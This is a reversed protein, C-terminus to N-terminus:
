DKEFIYYFPVSLTSALHIANKQRVRLVKGSLWRRLTSSDIGSFEALWWKKLGQKNILDIVTKRKLTFLKNEM